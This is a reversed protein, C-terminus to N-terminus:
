KDIAVEEDDELLDPIGGSGCAEIYATFITYRKAIFGPNLIIHGGAKYHVSTGIGGEVSNTATITSTAQYLFQGNLTGVISLSNPCATALETYWVGRGFTAAHLRGQDENIFLDTVPVIPLANNFPMWDSMGSSRYFVGLDTGIYVDTGGTGIAVCNIPIDPLSGSYNSWSAGANTSRFVKVGPTFGGITVYVTNSNSPNVAVDTIKSITNPPPFGTNNHLATWGSSGLDDTRWLTGSSSNNYSTAGAAYLRNSNSPCTAIAWSGSAGTNTWTDGQDDSVFVDDYGLFVYDPDSVHAAINGFWDYDGGPDGGAPTIDTKSSGSNSYRYARENL